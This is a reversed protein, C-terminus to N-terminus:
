SRREPTDKPPKTTRFKDAVEIAEVSAREDGEQAARGRGRDGEGGERLGDCRASAKFLNAKDTLM